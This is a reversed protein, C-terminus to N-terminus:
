DSGLLQQENMELDQSSTIMDNPEALLLDEESFNPPQQSTTSISTSTTPLSSTAINCHPVTGSSTAYTHADMTVDNLCIFPPKQTTPPATDTTTGFLPVHMPPLREAAAFLERRHWTVPSDVPPCSSPRHPPPTRDSHIVTSQHPDPQHHHDSHATSSTPSNSDINIKCQITRKVGGMKAPDPKMPTQLYQPLEEMIMQDGSANVAAVDDDDHDVHEMQKSRDSKMEEIEEELRQLQKEYTSKITEIAVYITEQFVTMDNYLAPKESKLRSELKDIKENAVKLESTAKYNAVRIEDEKRLLIEQFTLKENIKATELQQSNRLEDLLRQVELNSCHLDGEAKRVNLQAAEVYKQKADLEECQRRNQAVMSECKTKLTANRENLATIQQRVIDSQYTIARIEENKAEVAHNANAVEERLMRSAVELGNIRNAMETKMDIMMRRESMIENCRKNAQDRQIQANRLEQQLMCSRQNEMQKQAQEAMVANKLRCIEAEMLNNNQLLQSASYGMHGIQPPPLPGPPHGFAPNVHIGSVGGHHGVNREYSRSRSRSRRSKHRHKRHKRRSSDRERSSSRSRRGDM